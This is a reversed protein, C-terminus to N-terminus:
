IRGRGSTSRERGRLGLTTLARHCERHKHASREVDLVSRSAANDGRTLSHVYAIGSATHVVDVDILGARGATVEPAGRLGDIVRQQDLPMTEHPAITHIMLFGTEGASLKFGFAHTDAPDDPLTRLPQWHDPLSLAPGGSWLRIKM